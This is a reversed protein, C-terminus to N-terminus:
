RTLFIAEELEAAPAAVTIKGDTASKVISYGTDYNESCAKDSIRQQELTPDTPLTTIYEPLLASCIDAGTKSINKITTSIGSPYVGMKDASYLEVANLIARIDSSRQSNRARAFQEAPNIAMLLGSDGM